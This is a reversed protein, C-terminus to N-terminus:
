KRVRVLQLQNARSGDNDTYSTLCQRATKWDTVKSWSGDGNIEHDTPFKGKRPVTWQLRYKLKVRHIVTVSWASQLQDSLYLEPTQMTKAHPQETTSSYCSSTYLTVINCGDAIEIPVINPLKWQAFHDKCKVDLSTRSWRHKERKSRKKAM